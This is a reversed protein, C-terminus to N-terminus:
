IMLEELLVQQNWIFWEKRKLLKFSSKWALDLDIYIDSLVIPRKAKTLIM